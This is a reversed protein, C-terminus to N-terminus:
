LILLLVLAVGVRRGHRRVEVRGVLESGKKNLSDGRIRCFDVVVVRRGGYKWLHRSDVVFIGGPSVVAGAPLM